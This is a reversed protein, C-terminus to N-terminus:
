PEETVILDLGNDPHYTWSAGFEGWTASQMGDLARTADIRAVVSDPIDLKAVVCAVDEYSDQGAALDDDGQTDMVLSYGEDGLDGAGCDLYAQDLATRENAPTEAAGPQDEDPRLETASGCGSLALVALLVPGAAAARRMM